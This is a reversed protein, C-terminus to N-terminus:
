PLSPGGPKSDLLVKRAPSFVVVRVNHEQTITALTNADALVGDPNDTILNQVTKLQQQTQRYLGPNRILFALLVFSVITLAIIIVFAYSLWLLSRLSTFM